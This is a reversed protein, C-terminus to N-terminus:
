LPPQPEAAGHRPRHKRNQPPNIARILIRELAVRQGSHTGIYFVDDFPRGNARHGAVRAPMDLSEGIYVVEGDLLLLYVGIDPIDPDRRKPPLLVALHRQLAKITSRKHALLKAEAGARDSEICGTAIEVRRGTSTKGIIVWRSAGGPRKPKRLLLHAGKSRSRM